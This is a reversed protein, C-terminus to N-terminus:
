CITLEHPVTEVVAFASLCPFPNRSNTLQDFPISIHSRGLGHKVELDPLYIDLESIQYYANRFRMYFNRSGVM